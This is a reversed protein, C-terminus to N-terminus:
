RVARKLYELLGPPTLAPQGRWARRAVATGLELLNQEVAAIFALMMAVEAGPVHVSGAVARRLAITVERWQRPRFGYLENPRPQRNVVLVCDSEVGPWLQSISEKYGKQKLYQQDYTKVEIGLLARPPDGFRILLDIQGQHGTLGKKLPVERDVVYDGVCFSAFQPNQVGLVDLVAGTSDLRELVWALWDSYSTEKELWRHVGLDCLLPDSFRLQTASRELLNRLRKANELLQPEVANVLADVASWHPRRLRVKGWEAWQCLTALHDQKKM